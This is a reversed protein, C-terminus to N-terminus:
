RVVGWRYGNFRVRLRPHAEIWARDDDPLYRLIWRLAERSGGFDRSYLWCLAPLRVLERARDLSTEQRLYGETALELEREIGAASYARIPPCSEAACNLAFHIRPDLERPMAGLRPDDDRLPARLAFPAPRNRRLVGHEITNLSFRQGAVLYHANSFVKLPVRAGPKLDLAVVAHRMLANYVNIWFATRAGGGVAVEDFRVGGLAQALDIAEPTVRDDLGRMTALLSASLGLPDDCVKASAPENLAPPSM